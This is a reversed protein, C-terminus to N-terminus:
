PTNEQFIKVLYLVPISHHTLYLQNPLSKIVTNDASTIKRVIQYSPKIHNMIAAPLIQTDKNRFPVPNYQVSFDRGFLQLMICQSENQGCTAIFHFSFYNWYIRLFWEQIYIPKLICKQLRLISFYADPKCFVGFRSSRKPTEIM